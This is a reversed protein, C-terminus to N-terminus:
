KVIVRVKNPNGIVWVDSDLTRLAKFGTVMVVLVAIVLLVTKWHRRLFEIVTLM